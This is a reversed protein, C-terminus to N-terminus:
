NIKIKYDSTNIKNICIESIKSFKLNNEDLVLVGQARLIETIAIGESGLKLNGGIIIHNLPFNLLSLERILDMVPQLDGNMSGILVLSPKEQNVKSTWEGVPVSVGLNVVKFGSSLLENELLNNAVSHVDSGVTGILIKSMSSNYM